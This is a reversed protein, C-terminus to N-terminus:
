SKQDRKTKIKLAVRLDGVSNFFKLFEDACQLPDVDRYPGSSFLGPVGANDVYAKVFFVPIKARNAFAFIAPSISGSLPNDDLLSCIVHNRRVSKLLHALSLPGKKVLNARSTDIGEAQMRQAARRPEGVIRTYERGYEGLVRSLFSHPEHIQAIIIPTQSDIALKLEAPVVISISRFFGPIEQSLLEFTRAKLLPRILEPRAFAPDLGFRELFRYLPNSLLSNWAAEFAQPPPKGSNKRVAQKGLRVALNRAAQRFSAADWSILYQPGGDASRAFSRRRPM